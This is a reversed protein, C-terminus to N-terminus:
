DGCKEKERKIQFDRRSVKAMQIQTFLVQYIIFHRNLYMSIYIDCIDEHTKKQRIPYLKLGCMRWSTLSM